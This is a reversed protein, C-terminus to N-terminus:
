TFYIFKSRYSSQPKERIENMLLIQKEESFLYIDKKEQCIQLIGNVLKYRNTINKFFFADFNSIIYQELPIVNHNQRLQILKLIWFQKWSTNIWQNLM